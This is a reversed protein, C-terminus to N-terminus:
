IRDERNTVIDESLSVKCMSLIKRAKLYPAAHRKKRYVTQAQKLLRIHNYIMTLSQPPLDKIEKITQEQLTM